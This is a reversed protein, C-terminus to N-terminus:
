FDYTPVVSLSTGGIRRAEAYALEAEEERGLKELSVGLLFHPEALGDSLSAAKSFAEVAKAHKGEGSLILGKMMHGEFRGPWTRLFHHAVHGLRRNDGLSYAIIGLEYWADADSPDDECLELYMFRAQVLDGTSVLCRALLLHIDRREEYEKEELLLRLHYQAKIYDGASILALCLDEIVTRDEPALLMTRRFAEAADQPRGQLMALHGEVRRLPAHHDLYRKADRIMSEAEDYRKLTIATEISAMVYDSSSEDLKLASVYEVYAEEYESWHQYVLGSYYHADAHNPDIEIARRLSSIAAELEHQEINIRGHLVYYDANQPEYNIAAHTNQEAQKLQGVSFSQYAQQYALDGLLEAQNEQMERRAEKGTKTPGTCGTQLGSLGLALVVFTAKRTASIVFSM